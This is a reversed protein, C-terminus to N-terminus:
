GAPRLLGEEAEAAAVLGEARWLLSATANLARWAALSLPAVALAQPLLLLADGGGGDGHGTPEDASNSDVKRQNSPSPPQPPQLVNSATSTGPSVAVLPQHPLVCAPDM